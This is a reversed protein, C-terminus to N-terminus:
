LFHRGHPVSVHQGAFDIEVHVRGRRISRESGGRYHVGSVRSAKSRNRECIVISESAELFRLLGCLRDSDSYNATDLQARMVPRFFNVNERQMNLTGRKELRLEAFKSIRAVQARLSNDVLQLAKPHFDSHIRHVLFCLAPCDSPRVNRARHDLAAVDAVGFLSEFFEEARAPRSEDGLRPELDCIGDLERMGGTRERDPRMGAGFTTALSELREHFLSEISHLNAM